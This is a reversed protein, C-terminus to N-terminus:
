TITAAGLRCSVCLLHWRSLMWPSRGAWAANRLPDHHPAERVAFWAVLFLGEPQQLCEGLPHGQLDVPEVDAERVHEPPLQAAVGEVPVDVDGDGVQDDPDAVARVQGHEERAEDAATLDDHQHLGRQRVAPEVEDEHRLVIAVQAFAVEDLRPADDTRGGAGHLKRVGPEDQEAPGVPMELPLRVLHGALHGLYGTRRGLCTPRDTVRWTSRRDEPLSQRVKGVQLEPM